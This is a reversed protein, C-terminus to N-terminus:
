RRLGAPTYKEAPAQKMSKYINELNNTLADAIVSLGKDPSGANLLERQTDVIRESKTKM